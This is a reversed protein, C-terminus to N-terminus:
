FYQYLILNRSTIKSKTIKAKEYQNDCNICHHSILKVYYLQYRLHLTGYPSDSACFSSQVNLM